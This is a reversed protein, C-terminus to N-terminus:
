EARGMLRGDALAAHIERRVVRSLERMAVTMPRELAFALAMQQTVPPDLRYVTLEPDVADYLIAGHPLVTAGLGDRVLEKLASLADIEVIVNLEIGHRQAAADLQRRLGHHRGPVILPLEPLRSLPFLDTVEASVEFAGRRVMVFLDVSMLPDMRLYPSSRAANIVAMDVRGSVLWENVTGSFADMLQLRVQPFRLHFDSVIRAGITASVSPPMGFTVEGTPVSSSARLDAAAQALGRTLPAVISQFHAGEETLRIGRGHRYFLPVGVEEELQRVRRSLAPQAIGLVSSARSFSGSVVVALFYEIQRLDM